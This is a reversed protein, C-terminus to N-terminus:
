SREASGDRAPRRVKSSRKGVGVGPAPHRPGVFPAASVSGQLWWVLASVGLLGLALHGPHGTRQRAMSAMTRGTRPRHTSLVSSTFSSHLLWIFSFSFCRHLNQGASRVGMTKVKTLLRRGRFSPSRRGLSFGLGLDSTNKAGIERCITARPGVCRM